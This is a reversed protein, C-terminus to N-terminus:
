FFFTKKNNHNLLTKKATKHTEQTNETKGGQFIAGVKLKSM